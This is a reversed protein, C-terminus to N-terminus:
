FDTLQISGSGSWIVLPEGGGNLKGQLDNPTLRANAAIPLNSHIRGIGAHADLEAALSRPLKIVMSGHESEIRWPSTPRSGPLVQAEIGGSRTYIHLGNFAGRVHVAGGNTAAILSGTFNDAQVAGTDTTLRVSGDVGRLTIGGSNSRLEAEVDKPLRLSLRSFRVGLFPKAHIELTVTNATQHQEIRALPKGASWGSSELVAGITEGPGREVVVNVGETSLQLRPHGSIRWLHQWQNSQASPTAPVGATLVLVSILVSCFKM